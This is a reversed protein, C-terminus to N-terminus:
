GLVALISLFDKLPCKFLEVYTTKFQCINWYQLAYRCNHTNWSNKETFSIVVQGTFVFCNKLSLDPASRRRWLSASLGSRESTRENNQACGTPKTECSRLKPPYFFFYFTKNEYIKVEVGQNMEVALFFLFSGTNVHEFQVQKVALEICFFFFFFLTFSSSFHLCSVHYMAHAQAFWTSPLTNVTFWVIQSLHVLHM